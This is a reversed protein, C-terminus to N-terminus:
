GMGKLSLLRNSRNLWGKIFRYQTPNRAVIQRFDSASRESFQQIFSDPDYLNVINAKASGCIETCCKPPVGTGRVVGIDFLCTAVGKHSIEDLNLSDWYLKKYILKADDKTLNRIADESAKLGVRKLDDLIIGYKTIGGRDFKDNSLVGENAFTYDLAFEFNSLPSTQLIIKEKIPIAVPNNTTIVLSDSNVVKKKFLNKLWSWM